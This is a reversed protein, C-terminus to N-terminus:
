FPLDNFNVDAEFAIRLADVINEARLRAMMSARHMEVTRLSLNLDHAIKKNPSGRLLHRLVEGERRSLGSVLSRASKVSGIRGLRERLSSLLSNLMAPLMDRGFPLELVDSVGLKMAQVATVVDGQQISIVVPFEVIRHGLACILSTTDFEDDLEGVLLCGPQLHGLNDVFDTM